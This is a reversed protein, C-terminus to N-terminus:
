FERPNHSRVRGLRWLKRLARYPLSLLHFIRGLRANLSEARKLAIGGFNHEFTHTDAQKNRIVFKPHSVHNIKATALNQYPSDGRTHTADTGFGINSVLNVAPLIVLGNQAWVCCNWQYDWVDPAGQHMRDFIETWYRQEHPDDCWLEVLGAVKLEPWRSLSWDFNKWARRWTAWGWAHTYKSFYYSTATPAHVLQFNNGSIHMVRTDDRYHRLLEQCFGFFSTNPICDDELIIVEDFLTMAWDIATYVRIGCGLNHQAYNTRISCEWDVESIIERTAECLAREDETRPGDAAVLLVKPRAAAIARLVKRTLEPRKFIILLVPTDIVGSVLDATDIKSSPLSQM